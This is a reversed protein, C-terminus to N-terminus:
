CIHCSICEYVVDLGVNALKQSVAFVHSEDSYTSVSDVYECAFWLACSSLCVEEVNCVFECYYGVALQLYRVGM